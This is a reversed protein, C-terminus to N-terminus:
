SLPKITKVSDRIILRTNIRTQTQNIEGNKIISVAKELAKTVMFQRNIDITSLEPTIIAAESINDFGIVSIDEPVRIGVAQLSRILSIAISDNECFFATPLTSSPIKDPYTGISNASFRLRHFQKSDLAHKKMAGEFGNYREQFNRIRYKAMAYGIDKHGNQILHETAIFAGQYNNISIFNSNLHDFCTDIVIIHDHLEKIRILVSEPLDTGLLIIADSTQQNELTMLDDKLHNISISNVTLHIQFDPSLVLFDNILENFHPLKQFNYTFRNVENCALLRVMYRSSNDEKQRPKRLPRYKHDKVLQLIEERKQQSVGPKDNLVLSVTAKSVGALRAIDELKIM